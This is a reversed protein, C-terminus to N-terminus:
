KETVQPHPVVVGTKYALADTTSTENGFLEEHLKDLRATRTEVPNKAEEDVYKAMSKKGLAAYLSDCVIKAVEIKPPLYVGLQTEFIWIPEYSLRSGALEDVNMDPVIVLRELIYREHIWQRYKPVEKLVPTLLQLGENTYEMMRKEFQDESWVVRFMPKNTNAENGFLSELSKNITEISESLEPM